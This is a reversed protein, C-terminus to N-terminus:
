MTEHHVVALSGIWPDEKCLLAATGPHVPVIAHEKDNAVVQEQEQGAETDGETENEKEDDFPYPSVVPSIGQELVLGIPM